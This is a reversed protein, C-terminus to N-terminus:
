TTPAPASPPEPSRFRVGCEPCTDGAVSHLAYGCALCHGELDRMCRRILWAGGNLLYLGIALKTFAGTAYLAYSWEWMPRGPATARFQLLSVIRAIATFMDPLAAACFFVGIARILLKFWVLESV